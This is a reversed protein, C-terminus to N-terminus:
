KLENAKMADLGNMNKTLKFQEVLREQLTKENKAASITMAIGLGAVKETGHPARVSAAKMVRERTKKTSQILAQISEVPMQSYKDLSETFENESIEGHRLLDAVYVCAVKTRAEQVKPTIEKKEAIVTGKTALDASESPVKPGDKAASEESGMKSADGKSVDKESVEKADFKEENKLTKGDSFKDGGATHGESKVNGDELAKPEEVKKDSATKQAANASAKKDGDPKKDADNQFDSAEKKSTDTKVIGEEPNGKSAKGVAGGEDPKKDADNTFNSGELKGTDTKTIGDEAVVVKAEKLFNAVKGAFAKVDGEYSINAIKKAVEETLGAFTAKYTENGFPSLFQVGGEVFEVSVKSASKAAKLAAAAFTRGDGEYKVSAIAKQIEPTVQKTNISAKARFKKGEPTTILIGQPTIEAIVTGKTSVDGGKQEEGKIPASGAPISPGGEPFSEDAGMISSKGGSVDGQDVTKPDFKQENKLTSGDQFKNGGATYGEPKVNGNELAKPAEVAKDKANGLEVGGIQKGDAQAKKTAKGSMAEKSEKNDDKPESKKDDGEPKDKPEPKKDGGGNDPKVDKHSSMGKLKDLEEQIKDFMGVEKSEEVAHEPASPTPQDGGMTPAPAVAPTGGGNSGGMGDATEVGCTSCAEEEGPNANAAPDDSVVTQEGGDQLDSPEGPLGAPQEVPDGLDGGDVPEGAAGPTEVSDLGNADPKPMLAKSLEDAIEKPIEITVTEGAGDMPNLNDGGDVPATPDGLGEENNHLGQDNTDFEVMEDQGPIADASGNDDGFMNDGEDKPQGFMSPTNDETEIEDMMQNIDATVINDIAFAKIYSSIESAAEKDFKMENQLFEVSKHTDDKQSLDDALKVALRVVKSSDKAFRKKIDTWRDGLQKCVCDALNEGENPGSLAVADRGYLRAIKEKCSVAPFTESADILPLEAKKQMKSM